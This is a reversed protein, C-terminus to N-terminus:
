NNFIYFVDSFIVGNFFSVGKFNFSGSDFVINNIVSFEKNFIFVGGNLKVGSFIVNEEFIFSGSVNSFVMNMVNIMGKFFYSFGFIFCNVGGGFSVLFSCIDGSLFVLGIIIVSNVNGVNM